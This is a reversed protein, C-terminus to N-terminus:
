IFNPSLWSDLNVMHGTEPTDKLHPEVTYRISWIESMCCHDKEVTSLFPGNCTVISHKNLNSHLWTMIAFKM